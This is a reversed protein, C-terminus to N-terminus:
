EGKVPHGAAILAAALAQAVEAETNGKASPGLEDWHKGPLQASIVLALGITGPWFMIDPWRERLKEISDVPVAPTTM